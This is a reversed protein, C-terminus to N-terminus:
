LLTSLKVKRILELLFFLDEESMKNIYRFLEFRLKDSSNERDFRDFNLFNNINGNSRYM